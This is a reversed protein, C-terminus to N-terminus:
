GFLGPRARTLGVNITKPASYELLTEACMERGFGSAKIGGMPSGPPIDFWKNVWVIGADLAAALRHARASIARGCAQEWGTTPRTPASSPM